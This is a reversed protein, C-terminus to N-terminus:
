AAPKGMAKEAQERAEKLTNEQAVLAVRMLSLANARNAPILKEFKDVLEQKDKSLDM